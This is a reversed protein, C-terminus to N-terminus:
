DLQGNKDATQWARTAVEGVRGIAQSDSYYTSLARIDDEAVITEHRIRSEAFAVDEPVSSDLHHCVMM